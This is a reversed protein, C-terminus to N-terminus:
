SHSAEMVFAWRPYCRYISNKWMNLLMTTLKVLYILHKGGKAHDLFWLNPKKFNISLKNGWCWQTLKLMVSNLIEPLLNFDKHSFFINTDDAFLILDVVKSVNCLNFKIYLLTSSYYLTSTCDILIVDDHIDKSATQFLNLLIYFLKSVLTFWNQVLHLLCTRQLENCLALINM